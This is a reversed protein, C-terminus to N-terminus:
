ASPLRDNRRVVAAYRLMALSMDIGTVITVGPVAHAFAASLIGTGLGCDLVRPAPPRRDLVGVEVSSTSSHAYAHPYGLRQM